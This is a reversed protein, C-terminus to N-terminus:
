SNAHSRRRRRAIQALFWVAAIGVPIIVLLVSSAQLALLIALLVLGIAVATIVDILVSKLM